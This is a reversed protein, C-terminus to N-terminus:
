MRKPLWRMWTHLSVAMLVGWVFILLPPVPIPLFFLLLLGYSFIKSGRNGIFHKQGSQYQFRYASIKRQIWGDYTAAALMPVVVIGWAAFVLFRYIAMYCLAWLSILRVRALWELREILTLGALHTTPPPAPTTMEVIRTDVFFLHYLITAWRQIAGAAGPGMESVVLDHQLGQLYLLPIGTGFIMLIAFEFAIVGIMFKVAAREESIFNAM